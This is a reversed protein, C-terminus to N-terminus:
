SKKLVKTCIGLPLFQLEPHPWSGPMLSVDLSLVQPWFLLVHSEFSLGQVKRVDLNRHSSLKPFLFGCQVWCMWHSGHLPSKGPHEASSSFSYPLLCIRSLEGHSEAAWGGRGRSALASPATEPPPESSPVRYQCILDCAYLLSSAWPAKLGRQLCLHTWEGWPTWKLTLSVLFTPM